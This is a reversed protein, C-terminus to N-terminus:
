PGRPQTAHAEVIHEAATYVKLTMAPSGAATERPARSRFQLGHLDEVVADDVADDAAAMLQCQILPAGQEDVAAARELARTAM